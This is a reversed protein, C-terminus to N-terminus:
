ASMWGIRRPGWRGRPRSATPRAMALKLDIDKLSLPQWQADLEAKGHLGGTLPQGAVRSEVLELGVTAKQGPSMLRGEVSWDAGLMGERWAPDVPLTAPLWQALDLRRATGRLNLDWPASVAAQGSATLQTEGLAVRGENLKLWRPDLTGALKVQADAALKKLDAPLLTRMQEARQSLDVLFQQGDVKVQGGLATRPM